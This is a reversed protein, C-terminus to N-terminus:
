HKITKIKHKNNKNKNIITTNKKVSKNYNKVNKKCKHNQLSVYLKKNVFLFLFFIM